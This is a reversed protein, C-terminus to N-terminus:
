NTDQIPSKNHFSFGKNYGLIGNEGPSKRRQEVGETDMARSPSVRMGEKRSGVLLVADTDSSTSECNQNIEYM